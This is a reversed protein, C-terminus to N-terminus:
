FEVVEPAKGFACFTATANQLYFVEAKKLFDFVRQIKKKEEQRFFGATKIGTARETKRGSRVPSPM